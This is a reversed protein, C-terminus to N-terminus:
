QSSAIDNEEVKGTTYYEDKFKKLPLRAIIVGAAVNFTSNHQLFYCINIFITFLPLVVAAFTGRFLSTAIVCSRKTYLIGKPIRRRYCCYWNNRGWPFFLLLPIGSSQFSKEYFSCNFSGAFEVLGFSTLLPM